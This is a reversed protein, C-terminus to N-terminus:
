NNCINDEKKVISNNELYKLNIYFQETVKGLNFGGVLGNFMDILGNVSQAKLNVDGTPFLLGSTTRAKSDLGAKMGTQVDHSKNYQVIIVELQVM